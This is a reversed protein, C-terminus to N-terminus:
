PQVAPCPLIRQHRVCCRRQDGGGQRGRDGAIEFEVFQLLGKNLRHQPEAPEAVGREIGQEVVDARQRRCQQRLVDEDIRAREAIRQGRTM